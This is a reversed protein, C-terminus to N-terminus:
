KKQIELNREELLAGRESLEENTQMLEEQQVRLEEESAQLKEAQIELETNIHELESHQAKLEEAQAETEELLEQVRQRNKASRLAVGIPEGIQKLFEIERHSLKRTAAVELVGELALDVLPIAVVCTPKVEGLAFRIQIEDPIMDCIEVPHLSSAAQGTIGEGIKVPKRDSDAAFGSRPYLSGDEAMFL